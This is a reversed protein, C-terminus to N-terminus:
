AAFPALVALPDYGSRDGAMYKEWNRCVSGVGARSAKFAGVYGVSCWATLGHNSWPQPIYYLRIDALRASVRPFM